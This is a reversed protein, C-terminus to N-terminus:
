LKMTTSSYPHSSPAPASNTAAMSVVIPTFRTASTRLRDVDRRLTRPSVELRDALEQGSWRHRTQLLALLELM